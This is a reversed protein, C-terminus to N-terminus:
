GHPHTRYKRHLHVQPECNTTKEPRKAETDERAAPPSATWLTEPPPAEPRRRPASTRAPCRSRRPPCRQTARTGPGRWTRRASCGRGPGGRQRHAGSGPFEPRPSRTRTRGPLVQGRGGRGWRCRGRQLLWFYSCYWVHLLFCCYLLFFLALPPHICSYEINDSYQSSVDDVREAEFRNSELIVVLCKVFLM